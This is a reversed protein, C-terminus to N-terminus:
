RRPSKSLALIGPVHAEVLNNVIDAVTRREAEAQAELAKHFRKPMRITIQCDRRERSMCTFDICVV